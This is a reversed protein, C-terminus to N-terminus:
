QNYRYHQNLAKPYLSAHSSGNCETYDYLTLAGPKEGAGLNYPSFDPAKIASTLREFTAPHPEFAHIRAGPCVSLVSTSYSGENAGVDFVVPDSKEKLYQRLFRQEGSLRPSEYNLIGMGRLSCHYIFRNVRYLATRAFLFQYCRLLFRTM